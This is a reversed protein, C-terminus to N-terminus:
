GMLFGFCNNHRGSSMTDSMRVRSETFDMIRNLHTELDQFEMMVLGMKMVICRTRALDNDFLLLLLFWLPNRSYISDQLSNRVTTQLLSRV